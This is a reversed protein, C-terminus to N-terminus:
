AGLAVRTWTDILRGHTHRWDELVAHIWLTIESTHLAAHLSSGWSEPPDLWVYHSDGRRGAEVAAARTLVPDQASGLRLVANLTVLHVAVSQNAQPSPDGPHQAAYADVSLPTDSLEGPLAESYELWCAASAGIYRHSPGDIEPFEVRCGPCEAM